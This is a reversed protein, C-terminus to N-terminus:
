ILGRSKKSSGRFWVFPSFLLIIPMIELRGLLMAFSLIVKSLPSYIDYNGIPGVKDFGPGVNNFCAAVASINTEIGLNLIDAYFM